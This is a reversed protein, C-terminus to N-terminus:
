TRQYCVGSQEKGVLHQTIQLATLYCYLGFADKKLVWRETSLENNLPIKMSLAGPYGTYNNNSYKLYIILYIRM